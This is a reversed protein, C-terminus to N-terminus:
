MKGALRKSLNAIGNKREIDNKALIIADLEKYIGDKFDELDKNKKELYMQNMTEQLNQVVSVLQPLAKFFAIFEAIGM